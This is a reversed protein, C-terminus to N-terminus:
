RLLLKRYLTTDFSLTFPTRRALSGILIIMITTSFIDSLNVNMLFFFLCSETFSFTIRPLLFTLLKDGSFLVQFFCWGFVHRMDFCSKAPLNVIDVNLIITFINVVEDESVELHACLDTIATNLGKESEIAILPCPEFRREGDRGGERECWGSGSGDLLLCFDVGVVCVLYPIVM